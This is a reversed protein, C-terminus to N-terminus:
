NPKFEGFLKTAEAERVASAEEPTDYSGLHKIKGNIRIEAQYKSGHLYVGTFGSKNNSFIGRNMNQQSRTVWRLNDISNNLPNRDEHDVESCNDPNPKFHIAILRHILFKKGKSNKSLNVRYYGNDICQTLIKKHKKGYVNGDIDITYLGEYGIINM